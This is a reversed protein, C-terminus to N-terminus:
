ANKVSPEYPILIALVFNRKKNEFTRGFNENKAKTLM